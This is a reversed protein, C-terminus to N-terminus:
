LVLFSSADALARDFTVTHSCGVRSNRRGIIYDSLDGAGGRYDHLAAQLLERDEFSFVTTSLVKDLADAITERGFRYAARLVWVTECLVIDDVHLQDEEDLVESVFADVKRAQAADDQALYRVLINTDVGIV